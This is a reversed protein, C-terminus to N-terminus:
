DFDHEIVVTPGDNWEGRVRTHENIEIEARPTTREREPPKRDPKGTDHEATHDVGLDRLDPDRASADGGFSLAAAFTTLLALTQITKSM